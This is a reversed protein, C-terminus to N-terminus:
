QLTWSLAAIRTVFLPLSPIGDCFTSLKSLAAFKAAKACEGSSYCVVFMEMYLNM